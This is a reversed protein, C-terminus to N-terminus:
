KLLDPLSQSLAMIIADVVAGKDEKVDAPLESVGKIADVFDATLLSTLIVPIDAVKAGGKLETKALVALKGLAMGLAYPAKAVEVQVQMKEM